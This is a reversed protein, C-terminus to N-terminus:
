HTSSFVILMYDYIPLKSLVLTRNEGGGFHCPWTIFGPKKIKKM